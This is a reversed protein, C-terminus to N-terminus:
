MENQEPETIEHCPIFGPLWTRCNVTFGNPQETFSHYPREPYQAFWPALNKEAGAQDYAYTTTMLDPNPDGTARQHNNSARVIWLTLVKPQKSM